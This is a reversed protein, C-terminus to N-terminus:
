KRVNKLDKKLERLDQTIEEFKSLSVDMNHNISKIVFMVWWWWSMAIFAFSISIALMIYQIPSQLDVFWLVTVIFLALLPLVRAALEWFTIQKSLKSNSRITEM